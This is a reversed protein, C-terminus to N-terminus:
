GEAIAADADAQERHARLTETASPHNDSNRTNREDSGERKAWEWLPLFAVGAVTTAFALGVALRDPARDAPWGYLGYWFWFAVAGDGFPASCAVTKRFQTSAGSRAHPASALSGAAPTNLHSLVTRPSCLLQPQQKLIEQQAESLAAVITTGNARVVLVPVLYVVAQRSRNLTSLAQTATAVLAAAIEANVLVGAEPEISPDPRESKHATDAADAAAQLGAWLITLWSGSVPPLRGEIELSAGAVWVAVEREIEAHESGNELYIFLPSFGAEQRDRLAASTASASHTAVLRRRELASARARALYAAVGPHGGARQMQLRQSIARWVSSLFAFTIIIIGSSRTIVDPVSRWVTWLTLISIIEVAYYKGHELYVFQDASREARVAYITMSRVYSAGILLGLGILAANLTVSFSVAVSDLSVAANLLEVYCLMGLASRGTLAGSLDPETRAAQVRESVRTTIARVILRAAIAACGAVAVDETDM